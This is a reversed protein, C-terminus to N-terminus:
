SNPANEIAVLDVIGYVKKKQRCLFMEKWIKPFLGYLNVWEKYM